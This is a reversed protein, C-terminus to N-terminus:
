ARVHSWVSAGPYREHLANYLDPKTIQLTHPDEAFAVFITAAGSDVPQVTLITLVFGMFFAFILALVLWVTEINHAILAAVILCIIGSIFSVMALVKGVLIDQILGDIGGM